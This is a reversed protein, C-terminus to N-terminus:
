TRHRPFVLPLTVEYDDRFIAFSTCKDVDDNLQPKFDEYSTVQVNRSIAWIIDDISKETPQFERSSM